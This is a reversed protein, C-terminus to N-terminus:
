CADAAARCAEDSIGCVILFVGHWCVTSCITNPYAYSNTSLCHMTRSSPAYVMNFDWLGLVGVVFM